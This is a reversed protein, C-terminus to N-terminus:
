RVTRGHRGYRHSPALATIAEETAIRYRYQPQAALRLDYELVDGSETGCLLGHSNALQLTLCSVNARDPM